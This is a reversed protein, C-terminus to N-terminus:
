SSLELAHWLAVAMAIIGAVATMGVLTWIM